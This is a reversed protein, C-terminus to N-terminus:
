WRWLPSFCLLEKGFVSYLVQALVLQWHKRLSRRQLHGSQAGTLEARCLRSPSLLGADSTRSSFTGIFLTLYIEYPASGAPFTQPLPLLQALATANCASPTSLLLLQPYSIAPSSAATQLRHHEHFPLKIERQKLSRLPHNQLHPRTLHPPECTIENSRISNSWNM